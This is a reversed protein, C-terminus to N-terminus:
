VSRREAPGTRELCWGEAVTLSGAVKEAIPEM